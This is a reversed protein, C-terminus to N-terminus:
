NKKDERSVGSGTRSVWLLFSGVRDIWSGFHDGDAVTWVLYLPLTAVIVAIVVAFTLWYRIRRKM